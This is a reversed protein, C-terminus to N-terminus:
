DTTGHSKRLDREGERLVNYREGDFYSFSVSLGNNDLIRFIGDLHFIKLSLAGSDYICLIREFVWLRFRHSLGFLLFIKMKPVIEYKWFSHSENLWIPLNRYHSFQQVQRSLIPLQSLSAMYSFLSFTKALSLRSRKSFNSSVPRM